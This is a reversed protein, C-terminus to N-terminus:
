KREESPKKNSLAKKAEPKNTYKGAPARKGGFFLHGREKAAPGPSSAWQVTGAPAPATAQQQCGM